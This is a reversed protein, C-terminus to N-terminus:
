HGDIVLLGDGTDTDDDADHGGDAESEPAGGASSGLPVEATDDAENPDIAVVGDDLLGLGDAAMVGPALAQDDPEVSHDLYDASQASADGIRGAELQLRIEQIALRAERLSQDRVVLQERADLLEAELTEIRETAEALEGRTSELHEPTSVALEHRLRRNAERGEAREQRLDLVTQEYKEVQARNSLRMQRRTLMFLASCALLAVAVGLVFSWLAQSDLEM